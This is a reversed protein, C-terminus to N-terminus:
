PVGSNTIVGEGDIVLGYRANGDWWCGYEAGPLAEAQIRDDGRCRCIVFFYRKTGTITVDCPHVTVSIHRCGTGIVSCRRDLYRCFIAATNRRCAADRDPRGRRGSRIYCRIIFIGMRDFPAALATHRAIGDINLATFWPLCNFRRCTSGKRSSTKLATLLALVPDSRKDSIGSFLIRSIGTHAVRRRCRTSFYFLYFGSPRSLFCGGIWSTCIICRNRPTLYFICGSVFYVVAM